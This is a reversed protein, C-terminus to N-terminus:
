HSASARVEEFRTMNDAFAAHWQLWRQRGTLFHDRLQVTPMEGASLVEQLRAALAGPGAQWIISQPYATHDFMEVVGGSDCAVFPIGNVQPMAHMCEPMMTIFCANIMM